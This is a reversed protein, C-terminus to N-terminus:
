QEDGTKQGYLQAAQDVVSLDALDGSNNANVLMAEMSSITYGSLKLTTLSLIEGPTASGNTGIMVLYRGDEGQTLRSVDITYYQETGNYLTYANTGNRLDAATSGYVMTVSGTAGIVSDVKRHAGIQITRANPAVSEDVTLYFAIMGVAANGDLYIENNPGFTM